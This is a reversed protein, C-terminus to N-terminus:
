EDWQRFTLRVITEEGPAFDIPTGYADCLKIEIVSLNTINVRIFHPHHYIYQKMTLNPNPDTEVVRLIPSYTDGVLTHTVINTYIYIHNFGIRVNPLQVGFYVTRKNDQLFRNHFFHLEFGLMAALSPHLSLQEWNGLSLQVLNTTPLVSLRTESRMDIALIENIMSILEDVTNYRRIPLSGYLTDSLPSTEEEKEDEDKPKKEDSPGSEVYALVDTPDIYFSPDQCFSKSKSFVIEELTPRRKFREISIRNSESGVNCWRNPYSIEDLAVEWHGSLEYPKPLYTVYNGPKNARGTPNRVTSPLFVSFTNM